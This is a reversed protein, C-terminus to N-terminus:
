TEKRIQKKNESSEAFWASVIRIFHPGTKGRRPNMAGAKTPCAGGNMLKM